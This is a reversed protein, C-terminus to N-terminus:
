AWGRFRYVCLGIIEKVASATTALARANPVVDLLTDFQPPRSYIDTAAPVLSLGVKQFAALARPMHVGSTVLLGNRWGHEKFIADANVANERTTRSRTELILVSRPVGLEVLLNAIRQSEPVVRAERSLNGGSIVILPAKGARYVRLADLIRHDTAGGLLIMVDSLPLTEISLLPLKSEVRWSLWHAFIPTAEVWLAALAFGLLWKEM